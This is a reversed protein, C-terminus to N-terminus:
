FVSVKVYKKPNKRIDELLLDLDRASKQLHIYLSDDKVLMGLSGEGRNIGAAIESFENMAKNASALTETVQMKALTDSLDSFNSMINNFNDQNAALSNSISEINELIKEIRKKQSQMLTDLTGTTNELNEFSHAFHEVSKAINGQNTKDFLSELMSMVTDISNMLNEAKLKLPQLERSVAEKISEETQSALTDGPQALESSNGLRIEIAKSGLISSSYIRSVSNAPIDVPTKIIIEVIVENAGPSTFRMNRVRGVELGNILVPNSRELGSVDKYISYYVLENSFIDKGKLFNFGWYLLVLAVTVVFGIIFEKSIKM